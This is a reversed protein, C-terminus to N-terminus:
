LSNLGYIIMCIFVLVLIIELCGQLLRKQNEKNYEKLENDYIKQDNIIKQILEINKNYGSSIGKVMEVDTLSLTYQRTNAYAASRIILSYPDHPDISLARNIIRIANKPNGELYQAKAESQLKVVEMSSKTSPTQKNELLNPLHTELETKFGEKSIQLGFRKLKDGYLARMVIFIVIVIGAIAVLIGIEEAM